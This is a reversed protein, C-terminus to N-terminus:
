ADIYEKQLLNARQHLYSSAVSNWLFISYRCVVDSEDNPNWGLRLARRIADDVELLHETEANEDIPGSYQIYTLQGDPDREINQTLCRQELELATENLIRITDAVQSNGMAAM